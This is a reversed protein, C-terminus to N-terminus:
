VKFRAVFRRDIWDKWHWVWDGRLVIGNRTAIAHKRGASLLVLYKRQPNFPVPPEGALARRLNHTLPPGQRVAFVGAKPRPHELVSAVDGSAFVDPHSVSRLAANVAIFGREDTKLESHSYMPAPAAGTVFIVHQAAILVGNALRVGQADVEAVASGSHVEIHQRGLLHEGYAQVKRPFEDLVRARDTVLHFAAVPTEGPRTRMRYDLALVVEFGAAGAGVIVIGHEGAEAPVAATMADLAALFREVPKVPIAYRAAGPVNALPTTSGTDISLCDYAHREGNHTEVQKAAVNLSVVEQEIFRIGNAACLAALDIHSDARSYHGAIYGPLMGSYATHRASSILTTTTGPPPAVGFARLVQVHAHGGGILLLRRM